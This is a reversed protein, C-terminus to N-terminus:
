AKRLVDEYVKITNEANKEWTYNELVMKRAREGMAKAEEPHSLLYDIAEVLSDVDKPKVLMGTKMHTVIGDIGQNQVGIVPKGHAMAEIYVLGFTEQYSPMTFIECISMYQMVKDHSLRGLFRVNETIRFDHTIKELYVREPGDGIILYILNDHKEVLKKLARLNFEIGKTKLLRSVSLLVRFGKYSDRYESKKYCIDKDYFGYGIIKSSINFLNTLKSALRPSPSIINNSKSFVKKLALFCQKSRYTTIDLDTAQYTLVLPKKYLTRLLLGAYGDPLAMHAHILDFSHNKEVERVIKEIGRFMRIGSSAFLFAKPFVLYRPYYVEIGEITNHYPVLYYSKWKSSFKNIPFPAWGCPSLVLNKCGQKELTKIQDHMAIGLMQDYPRPYLHSIHLIKM